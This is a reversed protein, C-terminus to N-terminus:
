TQAISQEDGLKKGTFVIKCHNQEEGDLAILRLYIRDNKAGVLRIPEELVLRAHFDVVMTHLLMADAAEADRDYFELKIQAADGKDRLFVLSTLEANVAWGHLQYTDYGADDFPSGGMYVQTNLVAQLM